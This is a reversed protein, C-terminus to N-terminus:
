LTFAMERILAGPVLQGSFNRGGYTFTSPIFEAEATLAELSDGLINYLTDDFRMDELPAVLEGGEVLFPAYRTMGTIRANRADSWNTYHINSLYIGDKLSALVDEKRLSGALVEPSRLFEGHPAGNSEVGYELSSKQSVLTERLRGETILTITEQSLEGLENFPPVRRSTYDERLNFLHSLQWGEERMKLLPSSKLRMARESVGSWNIMSVLDAVARPELFVRYKGPTIRQVPRDLTSLRLLTSDISAILEDEVLEQGALTAKVAKGSPHFISYDFFFSTNSFFHRVGKSNAFAAVQPGSALLGALETTAAVRAVVDQVPAPSTDRRTYSSPGDIPTFIFPDDPVMQLEARLRLLMKEARVYDSEIDGSFPISVSSRREGAKLGMYLNADTVEGVQRIRGRNFRTFTSNEGKLNIILEEDARLLELLRSTVNSFSTEIRDVFNNM